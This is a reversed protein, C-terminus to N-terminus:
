VFLTRVVYSCRVFLTRVVYSCRVFPRACLPCKAACPKGTMWSGGGEQPQALEIRLPAARVRCPRPQVSLLLLSLPGDAPLVSQTRPRPQGRRDAVRHM